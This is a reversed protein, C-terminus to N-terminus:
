SSGEACFLGCQVWALTVDQNLLENVYLVEPGGHSNFANNPPSFDFVLKKCRLVAFQSRPGNKENLFTNALKPRIHVADGSGGSFTVCCGGRRKGERGGSGWRRPSWYLM